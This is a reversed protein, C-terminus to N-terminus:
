ANLWERRLQEIAQEKAKAEVEIWPARRFAAPMETILDSHRRDDFRERGNSIHVLQWDEHPHWTARAQALVEGVSPHDYSSLKEKCVHHHADFVMPVGAMHCVDLIDASGYAYEDNELTLRSRVAEPLAGISEVLREARQGKGGHVNFAAWSSRPQGLLDFIRAHTELITVSNRRVQESDSSLVVFQDPHLVVRIKESRARAGVRAADSALVALVERGVPTDAFPFLDSTLRYLRIQNLACWALGTDFRRLNAEYLDRLVNAQEAEPIKLLQTRTITRYRIADSVTICVLGLEPRVRAEPATRM